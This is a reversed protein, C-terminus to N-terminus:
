ILKEYFCKYARYTEYIDIKSTVEFPSHMSLVPVGCDLVEIGLNAMYQAITGGGGLDIKGLEGIQWKISDEDLMHTIKGILEPSADSAGAKGRSGTYKTFCIGKSMYATNYKDQVDVFNPDIGPTVDASLMVSNVLCRRSLIFNSTPNSLNCLEAIFNELNNSQAGTNGMSGVEEKDSLFCISTREPAGSAEFIAKIAAFSCVRDDQGYAGVMGRDFGVDQAKFAPLIELEASILDQECLGYREDLIKLINKKVSNKKDDSESKLPISGILINLGEGTIVESAKKQMQDAALHPLLDTITFVPDGVNDGISLQLTSGDKKIVVGHLSLPIAVWQYKKIGGYYHTKALALEFDEYLPIPKLDLRPSDIHAGIINVGKSIDQKGIVALIVSKGRINYFVKSGAVLTKLGSLYDEFQNFGNKLALNQIENVIERETRALNMFDKYNDSFQYVEANFTDNSSLWANECKYEM